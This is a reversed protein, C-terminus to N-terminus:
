REKKAETEKQFARKKLESSMADGTDAVMSAFAGGSRILEAPSGYELVKGGGLVLCYDFEIVTDLRHAVALISGDQFSEHLADQLLQDTRRDVSATAEDLILIKNKSLLARALCLLQRQGTSFSGDSVPSDLGNPLDKVMQTLHCDAIVKQISVDSHLGFLDLNERVSCGSFLTPVQPIVSVKTRLAHLGLKSVDVGDIVIRGHEAELLRFLTQVLSSKGSGTRGVIGVRSGPPISFAVSDLALPLSARYRVSLSEVDIGGKSPWGTELLEKDGELELPAEPEIKGFALVREVSVMQNVVEASQRICWQFLGALQLLMSLSLGLIAPDVNFWGQQNFVVSLFSVIALFLFVLSDMRFGVWRSAAIFSFFCRTHTDHITQFKTKFYDVANNSRITAVGGLSESLMAFIPSRALGELRKLERSSTVFVTRVSVFYWGLFPLAVLVFPLTSVTTAVAGLVMFSLSVFDFLTPPLQDDLIGIDASFRNLIRGLPNTDFFQVKARLVANAMRDHLTRSAKITLHFCLFCRFLALVVVLSGLGIVLGTIDWDDQQEQPREAWRGVMTITVLVSGQTVSFLLFLFFGVVVGGMAKLYDLYIGWEVKGESNMERHDVKGNDLPDAKTDMVEEVEDCGVTRGTAGITDEVLSDITDDAAHATLKGNSAEVCEKYSGICGVCGNDVLVCRCENVYQHQHTALIVCKGRSVGLGLLAEQYLQRGVKADVASLPDDVVLIEADRYIARALGIRARQGGSCQVGRDGLLTQDGQSLQQFDLVLGCATVVQDYWVEDLELGMLINEKVTGDMIWPDQAAYALSSYRRMITGSSVPLEKVIAQLLASKGCGVAGIIATLEGRRFEVSVNHLATFLGPTTAASDAVSLDVTESNSGAKNSKVENWYCKVNQLAIAVDGDLTGEDSDDASRELEPFELFQQIRGISVYVESTAMVALSAHKTMELQLINILTFCTFVDGQNLTNGTYVHVLFIVLSIVVNTAFFLAENWSKLTNAQAIKAVENRRYQMIRDLFRDEYGSMKMVRAGRVAQSVFTVRKDTLTAIKSRYHAFMGGLYLQLPIFVLILLAFGAAFANGVLTYGVALIAISQIPAWFLYNVFLAAMLFREVDNSALNMIRGYSASSDQHISSLRLSKDYIAAICSVRMQMGKKWTLFFLHHHEFLIVAGCVVLLGAWLYGRDNKDEFFEILKGLTVAQTVKAAAGAAMLPQAYWVSAFFDKAMARRLSPSDPRKQKEENWVRNFYNLSYESSDKELGAPLDEDTLTQQMGLKLLPYPWIFFLKSFWSATLFANEPREFSQQPPTTKQAPQQQQAAATSTTTPPPVDVAVAAVPIPVTSCM